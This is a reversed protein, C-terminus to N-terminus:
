FLTPQREVFETGPLDYVNVRIGRECLSYMILESVIDWNGAAQGCGIRPMHVSANREMALKALRELCIKLASYRIRPKPSPGYGRQCIMHFIDTSDDVSSLHSNGLKLRRHEALAWSAFNKQVEPWKSRVVRAFGAGWIAAQDNVVQAIIKHGRGRPETADGTVYNISNIGADEHEELPVAIGMVRPHISNPYPSVAVCEIRLTGLPAYWDEHGKDTFGYRTCNAVVSDTPLRLGFPIPQRLTRTRFAYDIKYRPRGYDYRSACFIFCPTKTLKAVRILLAETSVDFQERLKLLANVSLSEKGLDAFSGIPMLLEAAGIDCLSELQWEDAEMQEHTARNRVRAACDPFITHTIEHCISFRTRVRPRKPNYQIVLRGGTHVTRADLVDECPEVKLKKYRALDFPDLPKVTGGEQIYEFILDRAKQTILEVPKNEDDELDALARVSPNSWYSKTGYGHRGGKTASGDKKSIPRKNQIQTRVSSLASKISEAAEGDYEKAKKELHSAFESLLSSHKADPMSTQESASDESEKLELEDDSEFLAKRLLEKAGSKNDKEDKM